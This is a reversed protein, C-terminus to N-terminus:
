TLFFHQFRSMAFTPNCIEAYADWRQDPAPQFGLLLRCLSEEDRYTIAQEGLVELHNREPSDAYTLNPKNLLSFEANTLGFTEGRQRAHLLADSTQIFRVKYSRDATPPLFIINSLRQLVEDPAFRDTNMFLFTIDPRERAVRLVARHVFPIDFSDAGGYRAFVIAQDDIGLEQRLNGTVSPLDVIHPVWPAKGYAMVKSLWPSVYAYYDGHMEGEMFIAHICTPVSRSFLGDNWGNKICYLREVRAALLTEDLTEKSRYTLVPFRERFRQYVPSDSKANHEPLIIVSKNGLTKENHHAYDFLAVETGRFTMHASHFAVLM